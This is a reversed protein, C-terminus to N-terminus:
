RKRQGGQATSRHTKHLRMCAHNCPIKIWASLHASSSNTFPSTQAVYNLSVWEFTFLLEPTILAHSLPLSQSNMRTYTHSEYQPIPQPHISLLFPNSLRTTKKPFFFFFPENSDLYNVGRRSIVGIGPAGLAYEVGSEMDPHITPALGTELPHKLSFGLSVNQFVCFQGM